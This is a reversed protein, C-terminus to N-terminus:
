GDDSQHCIVSNRHKSIKKMLGKSLREYFNSKISTRAIKIILVFVKYM